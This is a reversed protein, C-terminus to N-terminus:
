DEPEMMLFDPESERRERVLDVLEGVASIPNAQLRQAYFRYAAEDLNLYGSDRARTLADALKERVGRNHAIFDLPFTVTDNVLGERIFIETAHTSDIKGYGVGRSELELGYLRTRQKVMVRGADANWFPESHAVRVVHAGLDLAW